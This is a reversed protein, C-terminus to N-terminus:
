YEGCFESLMPEVHRNVQDMECKYVKLSTLGSNQVITRERTYAEMMM